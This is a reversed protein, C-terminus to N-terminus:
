VNINKAIHIIDNAIVIEIMKGPNLPSPHYTTMVLKGFKSKALKGHITGMSLGTPELRVSQAASHGLAVLFIPQLHKIDRLLYRSCCNIEKYTPKRNGPPHARINNSLAYNFEGVAPFVIDQLVKIRLRMGADGCFPKIREEETQGGGQGIFM